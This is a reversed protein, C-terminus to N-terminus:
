RMSNLVERLVDKQEPTLSNLKSALESDSCEKMKERERARTAEASKQKSTLILLRNPAFVRITSDGMFSIVQNEDQTWWDLQSMISHYTLPTWSDSDECQKEMIPHLGLTVENLFTKAFEQKSGKFDRCWRMYSNLLVAGRLPTWLSVSKVKDPIIVGEGMKVPVRYTVEVNKIQDAM